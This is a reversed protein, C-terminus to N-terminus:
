GRDIFKCILLGGFHSQLSNKVSQLSVAFGTFVTMNVIYTHIYTHVTHINTHIYYVVCTFEQIHLLLYINFTQTNIITYIFLHINYTHASMYTHIYTHIYAHPKCNAYRCLWGEARRTPTRTWQQLTERPASIAWSYVICVYMCVNCVFYAHYKLAFM